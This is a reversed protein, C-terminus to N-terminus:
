GQAASADPQKPYLELTKVILPGSLRLCETISLSGFEGMDLYTSALLAM